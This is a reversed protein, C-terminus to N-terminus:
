TFPRLISHIFLTAKALYLYSVAAVGTAELLSFAGDQKTIDVNNFLTPAVFSMCSLVLVFSPIKSVLVSNDAGQDDVDPSNSHAVM